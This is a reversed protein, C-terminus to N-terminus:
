AGTQCLRGDSAVKWHESGVSAPGYLVFNPDYKKKIELLRPYNSGFYDAKWTPNDFTAENLYTGGNPTISRLLDQNHNMQAQHELLIDLPFTPAVYVDMNASYLADRWAPVVANSEPTNGVRAHTVNAAIGNIRYGPLATINRYAAILGSINDRVTDRAILRGGITSNTLYDGYPLDPTYYAFHDYYTPQENTEYTYTLGLEELEQIFPDFQAAIASEPQDPLAASYLTFLDSTIGFYNSIGPLDDWVLLQKHWAEVAAWYTGNDGNNQFTLSAGAVIGDPHAKTTQSIVVAYTGGGGGNLAWYLDENETPSVVLYRGDPTVVEFELTNDAALGYVGELAGHGGSQVYGGALGVTPCFGGAVRLGNDAAEQYVEFAQVGAGLKVASGNYGPSSYNFFSIDKLNHTWLALSGAGTSRGLFDHGTNKVQVRINHDQAFNLGAQVDAASSVNIAYSAINGLTCSANHSTFPSCSNNLWYPSMINIPDVFYSSPNTWNVKLAVCEGKDYTTGHCVDALPRGAILNGEISLNFQQWKQLSPWQRDGPFYHCGPAHPAALVRPLLVMLYSVGLAYNAFM